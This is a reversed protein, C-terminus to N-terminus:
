NARSGRGTGFRRGPGPPQDPHLGDAFSYGGQNLVCGGAGDQGPIPPTQNTGAAGAFRGDALTLGNVQFAANTVAFLRVANGGSITVQYGAAAIITDQTISLTQSLTITGSCAFTVTGGGALAAQLNAETPQTVVGGALALNMANLLCFLIFLVSLNAKSTNM